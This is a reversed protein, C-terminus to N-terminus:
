VKLKTRQSMVGEENKQPHTSNCVWEQLIPNQYNLLRKIRGKETVKLEPQHYKQSVINEFVKYETYTISNDGSPM